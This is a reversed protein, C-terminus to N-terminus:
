ARAHRRARRGARRPARPATARDPRAGLLAAVDLREIAPAREAACRGCPSARRGILFVPGTTGGAVLRSLLHGTGTQWRLYDTEGNSGRIAARRNPLDLDEVNLALAENACAATEYLLRWLTKLM